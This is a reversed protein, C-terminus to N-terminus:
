WNFHIRRAQRFLWTLGIYGYYVVWLAVAFSGLKGIVSSVDFAHYIRGTALKRDISRWLFQFIIPACVLLVFLIYPFVLIKLLKVKTMLRGITLIVWMTFAAVVFLLVKVQLLILFSRPPISEDHQTIRVDVRWLVLGIYIWFLIQIFWKFPAHLPKEFPRGIPKGFSLGARNLLLRVLVWYEFTAVVIVIVLVRLATHGAISRFADTTSSLADALM